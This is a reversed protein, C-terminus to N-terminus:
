KMLIVDGRCYKKFKFANKKHLGGYLSEFLVLELFFPGRMSSIDYYRRMFNDSILSFKEEETSFKDDDVYYTYM